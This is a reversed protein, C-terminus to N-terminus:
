GWGSDRAHMKARLMGLPAMMCLRNHTAQVGSSVSHSFVYLMTYICRVTKLQSRRGDPEWLSCLTVQCRTQDRHQANVSCTAHLFDGRCGVDLARMKACLMRSILSFIQYSTPSGFKDVDINEGELGGGGGSPRSAVSFM